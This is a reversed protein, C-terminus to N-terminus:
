VDAPVGYTERILDDVAVLGRGPVLVAPRSADDLYCHPPGGAEASVVRGLSSIYIGSPVPDERVGNIVWRVPPLTAWRELEGPGPDATRYASPGALDPRALGENGDHPGLDTM